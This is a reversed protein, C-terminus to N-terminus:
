VLSSFTFPTAYTNSVSDVYYIESGDYVYACMVILKEYYDATFGSLIFDFSAYERDVAVSVIKDNVVTLDDNLPNFQTTGDAVAAAVVGFKVTGAEKSTKEEYVAISSKNITYSLCVRDGDIKASWGDLVLIPDYSKVVTEEGCSCVNSDKMESIFDKFQFSVENTLVDGCEACNQTGYIITKTYDATPNKLYEAYSVANFSKFSSFQNKVTDASDGAYFVLSIYALSYSSSYGSIDSNAFVVTKLNYTMHFAASSLTTVSAPIVVRTLTAGQFCNGGISTLGSPFNINDIPCNQFAKEGITQVTNPLKVTKLKTCNQAAYGGISTLNTMGSLDLLELGSASAISHGPLSTISADIKLEQLTACHRFSHSGFYTVTSPIHVKKIYQNANESSGTDGFCKDAIGTVTYEVGGHTFKAPIVVNEVKCLTRNDASVTATGTTSNLDYYIGGIETSASASIAFLCVLMSVIALALLIKKKM